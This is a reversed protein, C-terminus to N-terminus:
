ELVASSLALGGFRFKLTPFGSGLQPSPKGLSTLQWGKDCQPKLLIDTM